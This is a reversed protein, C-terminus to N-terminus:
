VTSIWGRSTSGPPDSPRAVIPTGYEPRTEARPPLGGYVYSRNEDFPRVSSLDVPAIEPVGERRPAIGADQGKGSLTVSAVPAVAVACYPNVQSSSAPRPGYWALQSKM